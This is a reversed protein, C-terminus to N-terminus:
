KMIRYLIEAVHGRSIIDEAVTEGTLNPVQPSDVFTEWTIFGKSYGTWVYSKFWVDGLDMSEVPSSDLLEDDFNYALLIMKLAEVVTVNKEPAFMGKDYGNVIGKSHAYCVAPAFWEDKVDKFCRNYVAPSPSVKQADLVLKLFESRTIPKDPQMTGDAYGNLVHKDKLYAIAQANVHATSVDKFIQSVQAEGSLVNGPLLGTSLASAHLLTRVAPFLFMGLLLILSTVFFVTGFLFLQDKELNFFQKIKQKQNLSM